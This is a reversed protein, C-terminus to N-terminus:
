SECQKAAVRYRAGITNIHGGTPAGEGSHAWSHVHRGESDLWEATRDNLQDPSSVNVQNDHGNSLGPKYGVNITQDRGLALRQLCATNRSQSSM